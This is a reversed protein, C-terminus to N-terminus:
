DLSSFLKRHAKDARKYERYLLSISGLALPKGFEPATIKSGGWDLPEPNYVNVFVPDM